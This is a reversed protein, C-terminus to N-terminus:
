STAFLIYAAGINITTIIAVFNLLYKVFFESGSHSAFAASAIIPLSLTAGTAISKGLINLTSENNEIKTNLSIEESSARTSILSNDQQTINRLPQTLHNNTSCISLMSIEM